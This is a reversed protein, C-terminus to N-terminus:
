KLVGHGQNYIYIYIYLDDNATNDYDVTSPDM